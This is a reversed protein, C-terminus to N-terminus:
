HMRPNIRWGRWSRRWRGACSVTRGWCSWRPWSETLINAMIGPWLRSRVFMMVWTWLRPLSKCTLIWILWMWWCCLLSKMKDTLDASEKSVQFCNMRPSSHVTKLTIIYFIFLSHHYHCWRDKKIYVPMGYFVSRQFCQCASEAHEFEFIRGDLLNVFDYSNRTSAWFHHFFRSALLLVDSVCCMKLLHFLRRSLNFICTNISCRPRFPFVCFVEKHKQNRFAACTATRSIQHIKNQRM